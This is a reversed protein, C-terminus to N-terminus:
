DPTSVEAEIIMRPAQVVIRVWISFTTDMGVVNARGSLPSHEV